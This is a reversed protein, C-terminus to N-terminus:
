SLFLFNRLRLLFWLLCGVYSNHEGTDLIYIDSGAGLNGPNYQCNLRSSVQDIRDVAWSMSCQNMRAYTEEEVYEVHPLHKM